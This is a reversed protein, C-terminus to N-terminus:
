KSDKEKILLYCVPKLKKGDWEFFREMLPEQISKIAGRVSLLRSDARHLMPEERQIDFFFSLTFPLSTAQGTKIDVIGGYLCGSGCGFNVLIYHGALNVPEERLAQRFRTPFTESIENNVKLRARKKLTVPKAPYHEFRPAVNGPCIKDPLDYALVSNSLLTVAISLLCSQRTMMKRLWM